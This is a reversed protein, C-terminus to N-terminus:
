QGPKSSTPLGLFRAANDFCINKIMGGILTEDDPLLGAEVENGLLNCLVRRFYEHRPFSMFSRSDTVMGVFNALLGCNSLAGLQLEMGDKQDLFWWGGGFQVKGPIGEESFNGAMTAFAYNDSPNVNFVIIKPLSKEQDLRDLYAALPAVQPWDGISDYGSDPGQSKTMRTNANRFAGLHLMKTWGRKADLQGFFHMMASAFKASDEVSVTAGSRLKGFIEAAERDSCDESLCQNLGHDSLRGGHEHFDDHRKRLADQFNSFNSIEVNASASLKNTWGNFRAPDGTRLAGDPRFTPFVLTECGSKRIQEHYELSNAPDDTTCLAMVQFKKLIGQVALEPTSLSKNAREWIVAATTGDLLTHIGFYRVLELHTWHYLPNRLTRPVTRAWAIFKEYDSADGSCFRKAVGDARMARWKYHDGELWIEALNAFKRNEAVEKPSLHSHFDLVPVPEAYTHYLRRATESQLLFDETIFTMLTGDIASAIRGHYGNTGLKGVWGRRWGAGGSCTISTSSKHM